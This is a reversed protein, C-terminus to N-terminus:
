AGLGPFTHLPYLINPFTGICKEFQVMNML